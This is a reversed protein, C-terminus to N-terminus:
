TDITIKENKNLNRHEVIIPFVPSSLQLSMRNDRVIPYFFLVRQVSTDGDMLHFDLM